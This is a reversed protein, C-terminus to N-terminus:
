PNPVALMTLMLESQPPAHAEKNGITIQQVARVVFDVQSLAFSLIITLLAL